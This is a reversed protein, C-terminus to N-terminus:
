PGFSRVKLFSAIPLTPFISVLRAEPVLGFKFLSTLTEIYRFPICDLLLSFYFFPLDNEHLFLTGSGEHRSIVEGEQHPWGIGQSTAGV